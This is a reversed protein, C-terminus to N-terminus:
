DTYRLRISGQFQIPQQGTYNLQDQILLIWLAGSQIDAYSGNSAENFQTALNLRKYVKTEVANGQQYTPGFSSVHLQKDLIIHFRAANSLNVASLYNVTKASNLDYTQLLDTVLPVSANSQKDVFIIIRCSQDGYNTAASGTGSPASISQYCSARMYLSHFRVKRGIRQNIDSGQKLANICWVGSGNAVTGVTAFAVSGGSPVFNADVSKYEVIPRLVRRRTIRRPALKRGKTSRRKNYRKSRQRM